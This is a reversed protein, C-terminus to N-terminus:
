EILIKEICDDALILAWKKKPIITVSNPNSSGRKLRAAWDKIAFISWNGPTWLLSYNHEECLRKMPETLARMERQALRYRERAEAKSMYSEDSSKVIHNYLRNFRLRKNNIDNKKISLKVLELLAEKREM